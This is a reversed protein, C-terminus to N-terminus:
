FLYVVKQETKRFARPGQPPFLLPCSVLRKGIKGKERANRPIRLNLRFMQFLSEVFLQNLFDLVPEPDPVRQDVGLPAPPPDVVGLPFM